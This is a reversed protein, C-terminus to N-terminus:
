GAQDEDVAADTLKVGGGFGEFRQGDDVLRESADGFFFLDEVDVTLFVLGDLEVAMRGNEMQNLGNAVFGVAKGDGEMAEAAGLPLGFGGEAFDGADAWGGGAFEEAFEATDGVDLAGAEVGEGFDDGAFGGFFNEGVEVGGLGGRGLGASWSGVTGCRSHPAEVGSEGGSVCRGAMGWLPLAPMRGANKVEAAGDIRGAGGWM